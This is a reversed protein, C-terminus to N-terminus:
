HKDTALPIAVNTLAKKGGLDALWRGFSEGSQIIKFIEAKILKIDTSM